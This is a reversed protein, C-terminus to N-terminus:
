SRSMASFFLYSGVFRNRSLWFMLGVTYVSPPDGDGGRFRPGLAVATAKAGPNGSECSHRCYADLRRAPHQFVRKDNRSPGNPGDRFGHVRTLGNVERVPTGPNRARP